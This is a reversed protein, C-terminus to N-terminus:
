FFKELQMYDKLDCNKYKNKILLKVDYNSVEHNFISIRHEDNDLCILKKPNYKLIQFLARVLQEVM